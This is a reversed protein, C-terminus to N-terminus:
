RSTAAYMADISHKFRELAQPRKLKFTPTFLGNEVSFLEPSLEIARVQEFGKLGAESGTRVMSDLIHKKVKPHACLSKFDLKSLDASTKAWPLLVEEDPVVIAVLHAQLSDGYVFSQAVFRNRAYIQEIKDPAVYEGQALKFINKKRDIIKLRGGPLFTGIDGTRLWGDSDLVANTEEENKYYGVFVSPGRVWIEGRPHPRDQHTYRMDPVDVLKIECCPAPAGVHGTTFDEQSTKSIVCASETMGYGEFVTGGFCVRLFQMVEASIPASGTSMYRVHGGLKARLKSFVVKEFFANPAQGRDLARKKSEYAWHFLKQAVISGERVGANVKDYIRNWLRPVSCFVTPKLENIDDLLQLVDGRYFGVHAGNFLVVLMTVREYIHALPLYSIHCDSPSIDLDFAYGAANSILNRHTLMVGKPAGTTGSTYCITALEDPSAPTPPTPNQAGIALFEEYTVLRVGAPLSPRADRVLAEDTSGAGRGGYCVVLKVTPTERLCGVMTKLVAQSCAVAALSAHNCIYVVADPGLTDYLPVSTVGQRTMAAECAVWEPSNISYLGVRAGKGIGLAALAGGAMARERGVEEFTKFAYSGAAGTARDVVRAGLCKERAHRSLASEWADHLTWVRDHPPPFGTVLADVYASNRRIATEERGGTGPVEVSYERARPPGM